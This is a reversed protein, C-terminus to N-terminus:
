LIAHGCVFSNKFINTICKKYNKFIVNVKLTNVRLYNM